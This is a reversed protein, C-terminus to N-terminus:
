SFLGDRLAEWSARDPACILGGEFSTPEYPRGDVRCAYGGAEKHLLVGPAHDWPLLRHFVLFHLHGAALIRYQHAACRYDSAAAVLPLRACVHSKTPEPMFRWSVAGAMSALPVPAAVRLPKRAGNGELWAGGGALALATDEGVPDHIVAGVTKGRRLVAVMSGFLPLGAIFNATGDIPDLIFCLDAGAITELLAQDRSVAEEGVVTCGPFRRRLGATLAVEAAEDAVTVLDLPGSKAQVEGPALRRFHPMIEAKAVARVLEAVDALEAETM